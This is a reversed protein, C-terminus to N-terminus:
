ISIILIFLIIIAISILPRSMMEIWRIKESGLVQYSNPEVEVVRYANMTPLFFCFIRYNAYTRYLRQDEAYVDYKGRFHHSGWVGMNGWRIKYKRGFSTYSENGTFHPAVICEYLTGAKNNGNELAKFVWYRAENLSREVNEGYYLSKALQYQAESDGAEAKELLIDIRHRIYEM